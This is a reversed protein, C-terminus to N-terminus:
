KTKGKAELNKVKVAKAELTKVEASKVELSAKLRQNELSQETLAQGQVAIKEASRRVEDQLMEVKGGLKAAEERASSAEARYANERALSDASQRDLATEAAKARARLEDMEQLQFTELGKYREEALRAAEASAQQVTDAHARAARAEEALQALRGEVSLKAAKESSVEDKLGTIVIRLEAAASEASLRAQMSRDREAQAELVLQNASEVEARAAAQAEELKTREEALKSEAQLRAEEIAKVWLTEMLTSVGEPLQPMFQRDNFAAAHDTRWQSLASSIAVRNKIGIRKEVLEITPFTGEGMLLGAAEYALTRTDIKTTPTKPAVSM